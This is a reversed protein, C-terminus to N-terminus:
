ACAIPRPRITRLMLHSAFIAARQRIDRTTVAAAV